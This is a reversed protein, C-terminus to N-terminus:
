PHSVASTRKVQGEPTDNLSPQNQMIVDPGARTRHRVLSMYDFHICFAHAIDNMVDLIHWLLLAM